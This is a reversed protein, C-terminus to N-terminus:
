CRWSPLIAALEHRMMSSWCRGAGCAAMCAQGALPSGYPPYYSGWLPACRLGLVSVSAPAPAIRGWDLHPGRPRRFTGGTTGSPPRARCFSTYLFTKTWELILIWWKVVGYVTSSIHFLWSVSEDAAIVNPTPAASARSYWCRRVLRPEAPTRHVTEASPNAMCLCRHPPPAVHVIRQWDVTVPSGCVIINYGM